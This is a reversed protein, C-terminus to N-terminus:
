PAGCPARWCPARMQRVIRPNHLEVVDGIGAHGGRGAAGERDDIRGVALGEVLDLAARRFVDVGGHACRLLAVLIHPVLGGRDLAPPQQHAQRGLDGLMGLLQGGDLLAVAALGCALGAGVGQGQRAVELEVGAGAVLQVALGDGVGVAEAHEGPALRMAHGAMDHRPVVGHLDEAAAHAARQGRAVHAHDFGCFVRAQGQQAHRLERRLHAKRGAREVDHGAVPVLHAVRQRAVGADVVDAEGAAGLHARQDLLGGGLAVARHRQLQAALARLHDEGVGVQVGGHGHQDVGDHLVRALGARGARAHEDLAGDVFGEQLAQAVGELGQAHAGGGHVEMEARQDALALLLAHPVEEGVRLHGADREHGLARHDVLRGVGAEVLGGGQQAVHRHVVAQRLLFDEAGHQGGHGELAFVFGGVQGVGRGEAQHGADPRAVARALEAHRPADGAALHEDVVVARGAAHLQGEAAHLGAAVAAFLAELREVAEGGEL